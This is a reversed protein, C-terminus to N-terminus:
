ANFYKHHPINKTNDQLPANLAVEGGLKKIALIEANESTSNSMAPESMFRLAQLRRSYTMEDDTLQTQMDLISGGKRDVGTIDIEAWHRILPATLGVFIMPLMIFGGGKRWNRSFFNNRKYWQSKYQILEKITMAQPDLQPKNPVKFLTM